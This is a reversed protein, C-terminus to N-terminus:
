PATTASQQLLAVLRTRLARSDVSTFTNLTESIEFDRDIVVLRPLAKGPNYVGTVESAKDVLVTFTMGRARVRPKIKSATRADDISIALVVLGDDKLEDHLAQLRSLEETCSSCWTAWFAILVVKGKFDSLTVPQRDIDRLTFDSAATSAHAVPGSSLLAIMLVTWALGKCRHLVTM